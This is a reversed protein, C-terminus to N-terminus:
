LTKYRLYLGSPNSENIPWFFTTSINFFEIFSCFYAWAYKNEPGLPVPFVDVALIKALDILQKSLLVPIAHPLHSFQRENLPFGSM